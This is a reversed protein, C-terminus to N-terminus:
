PPNNVIRKRAEWMIYEKVSHASGVQISAIFDFLGHFRTSNVFMKETNNQIKHSMMVSSSSQCQLYIGRSYFVSFVDGTNRSHWM